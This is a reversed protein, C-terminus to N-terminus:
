SKAYERMMRKAYKVPNLRRNTQTFDQMYAEMMIHHLNEMVSESDAYNQLYYDLVEIANAAGEKTYGCWDHLTNASLRTYIKPDSLVKKILNPQTPVHILEHLQRFYQEDKNETNQSLQEILLIAKDERLDFLKVYESIYKNIHKNQQMKPNKAYADLVLMMSKFQRKFYEKDDFMVLREDFNETVIKYLSKRIGENNILSEESLIKDVIQEQLFLTNKKNKQEEEQLM